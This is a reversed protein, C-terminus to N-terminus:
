GPCASRFPEWNRPPPNRRSRRPQRPLFASSLSSPRRSSLRRRDSRSDRSDGRSKRSDGRSRRGGGRSRRGGGRSRSAAPAPSAIRRDLSAIFGRALHDYTKVVVHDPYLWLSNTFIRAHGLDPCHIDTVRGDYLNMASAFNPDGPLTHTHGSVWLFVQPNRRLITGIREAPQAVATGSAVVGNKVLTGVLPAHYFVITPKTPNRGLTADLWALSDDSLGVQYGTSAADSSLYVLEYGALVEERQLSSLHFTAAFRGLKEARSAATGPVVMGLPGQQDAYIYDHNGTIPVVPASFRALFQAAQSYELATGRNATIDGLAVVRAVGAWGNIDSRMKEKAAFLAEGEAPNSVTAKYPLHPDGILVIRPVSADVETSLVAPTLTCAGLSLLIAALALGALRLRINGRIVSFSVGNRPNIMKNDM